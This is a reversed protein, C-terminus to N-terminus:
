AVGKQPRHLPAGDASRRHCAGVFGAIEQQRGLFYMHGGEWMRREFGARTQGAWADLGADTVEPDDTGGLAFVKSSLKPGERYAYGRAMKYDARLAPMLLDRLEANDLVEPPTAGYSRLNNLIEADAPAPRVRLTHPAAMASVVLCAVPRSREQLRRALEFAVLAGFSHGFLSTPKDERSLAEDLASVIVHIDDVPREYIRHERAPLSPVWLEVDAPLWRAWSTYISGSGGAYPLCVLRSGGDGASIRRLWTM